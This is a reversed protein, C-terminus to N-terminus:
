RKQSASEYIRKAKTVDTFAKQLEMNELVLVSMEQWLLEDKTILGNRNLYAEYLLYGNIGASVLMDQTARTEAKRAFKPQCFHYRRRSGLNTVYECRIDFEDNSNLTNFVAFFDAEARYFERRLQILSKDGYVIIEELTDSSAPESEQEPTTQCTGVPVLTLMLVIGAACNGVVGISRRFFM